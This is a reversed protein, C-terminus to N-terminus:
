KGNLARWLRESTLPFELEAIVGAGRLADHAANLLAAPVGICGAEGVGKAQLANAASPTPRSALALPPIDAARPLAYDMLSGSLLQGREDYVVREMLAQGLGQALGGRLQGELLVPHLAPGADDAWAMQEVTLAGTGRDIAVAAIVCGSAWAEHPVADRRQVSCPRAAGAALKERLERCAALVASGGIPTGRSALAGVGEPCLATDGHLVRVLAPACGMERAVLAAYATERGQGQATSGTALAYGGDAEATLTAAEFGQGCPEVYLGIGLGACEGRARRAALAARRDAYGILAAADRLLGPLDARDLWRDGPGQRPLEDPGFAHRLRWDLPDLGAAHAAEDALREMLIAAEPRGAGRYIGVAPANSLRAQVHVSWAPVRYPGPLIRAANRAPVVASFPLWAGLAFDGEVQLGQPAGAEDLWLRASLRSARGHTGSLLDEMRASQWRLAGGIRVAAAALWLDEPFVSAKGGFAGGVDIARVRVRDVALGAAQALDHRARAPTQTSLWADLRTGDFQMLAARPEMPMAAVRPSSVAAQVSRGQVPLTGQAHRLELVRNAPVDAHVLTAGPGHDPEPDAEDIDAFVADAAARAQAATAAVVLALPQGLWRVLDDTLPAQPLALSEGLANVPPPALPGLEAATLVAEVGPMGRAAEADISRLRGCAYSSRVFVAHRAAPLPQNAVFGGRGALLRPDEVRLWDTGENITNASGM